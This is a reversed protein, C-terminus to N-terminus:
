LASVTYFCVSCFPQVLLISTPRGTQGWGHTVRVCSDALLKMEPFFFFCKRSPAIKYSIFMQDYNTVGEVCMCYGKVCIYTTFMNEDGAKM